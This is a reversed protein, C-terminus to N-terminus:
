SDFDIQNRKKLEKERAEKSKEQNREVDSLKIRDPINALDFRSLPSKDGVPIIDKVEDVKSQLSHEDIPVGLIM